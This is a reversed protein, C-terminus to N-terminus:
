LGVSASYPKDGAFAAYIEPQAFHDPRPFLSNFLTPFTCPTLSHFSPLVERSVGREQGEGDSPRDHLSIYDEEKGVM